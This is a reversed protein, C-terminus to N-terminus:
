RTPMASSPRAPVIQRRIEAIRCLDIARELLPIAADPQGRLAHFVRRVLWAYVRTYAHQLRDARELALAAHVAAERFEGLEALRSALTGHAAAAPYTAMGFPKYGIDDPLLDLCHELAETAPELDGLHWLAQSLMYTAVVEIPTDGLREAIELARRASAAARDHQGIMDLSQPMLAAVLRSVASTVWSRRM